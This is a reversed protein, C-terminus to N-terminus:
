WQFEAQQLKEHCVRFADVATLLQDFLDPVSGVHFLASDIDMDAAQALHELGGSMVTINLRYAAGTVPKGSVISRQMEETRLGRLLIIDVMGLWQCSSSRRNRPVASMAAIPNGYKLSGTVKNFTILRRKIIM